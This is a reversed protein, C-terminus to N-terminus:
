IFSFRLYFNVKSSSSIQHLIVKSSSLKQFCIVKSTLCGKISSSRHPFIVKSPPCWLHFVVRSPLCSKISSSRHHFIVKSPLRGIISSLRQYFVIKSVSITKIHSSLPSQANQTCFPCQAICLQPSIFLVIQHM